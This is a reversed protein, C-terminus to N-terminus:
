TWPPNDKSFVSDAEWGFLPAVFSNCQGCHPCELATTDTGPPFEIYWQDFCEVCLARAKYM